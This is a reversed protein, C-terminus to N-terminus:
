DKISQLQTKHPHISSVLQMNLHGGGVKPQVYHVSLENFM